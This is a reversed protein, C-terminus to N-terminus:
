LHHHDAAAAAPDLLSESTPEVSVMLPTQIQLFESANKTQFSQFSWRTDMNVMTVWQNQLIWELHKWIIRCMWGRSTRSTTISVLQVLDWNQQLNWNWTNHLYIIFTEGFECKQNFGVDIIKNSGGAAEREM